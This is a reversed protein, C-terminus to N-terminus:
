SLSLHLQNGVLKILLVSYHPTSVASVTRAIRVLCSVSKPRKRVRDHYLTRFVTGITDAMLGRCGGNATYSNSEQLYM